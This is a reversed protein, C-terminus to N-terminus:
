RHAPTRMPTRTTRTDPTTVTGMDTGTAPNGPTLTDRVTTRRLTIARVMTGPRPRRATGRTTRTAWGTRRAMGTDPAMGPRQISLGTPRAM